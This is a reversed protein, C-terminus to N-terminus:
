TPAPSNKPSKAVPTLRKELQLHAEGDKIKVGVLDFGNRLNLILMRKFRNRTGTRVMHYGHEQLYQHQLELLRRGIGHGESSEAVAGLWSHFVGPRECFGLKFGVVRDNVLAVVLL